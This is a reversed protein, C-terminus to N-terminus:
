NPKGDEGADSELIHKAVVESFEEASLERANDGDYRINPSGTAYAQRAVHIVKEQQEDTLVFKLELTYTKSM